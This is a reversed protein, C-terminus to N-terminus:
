GQWAGRGNETASASCLGCCASAHLGHSRRHAIARAVSGIMVESCKTVDARWSLSHHCCRSGAAQGAGGRDESSRERRGGRLQAAAAPRPRLRSLSCYWCAGPLEVSLNGYLFGSDGRPASISASCSASPGARRTSRWSRLSVLAANRKQANKADGLLCASELVRFPNAQNGSVALRPSWQPTDAVRASHLPPAASQAAGGSIYDGAAPQPMAFGRAFLAPRM